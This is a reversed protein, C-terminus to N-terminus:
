PSTPTTLIQRVPTDVEAPARRIYELTKAKTTGRLSNVYDVAAFPSFPTKLRQQFNSILATWIVADWENAQAWAKIADCAAPHHQRSYPRETHRIRNVYGIKQSSTTERKRLNAVADTLNTFTSRAFLTEVPQGHKPDIVLSLHGDDSVRSFEIPLTPGGTQWRGVIRLGGTNWVLSGWALVAIKM